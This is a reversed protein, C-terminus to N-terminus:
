QSPPLSLPIELIMTEPLHVEKNASERGILTLLGSQGRTETLKGEDWSVLLSPYLPEDWLIWARLCSSTPPGLNEMRTGGSFDGGGGPVGFSSLPADLLTLFTQGGGRAWWWWGNQGKPVAELGPFSVWIPAWRSRRGEPSGTAAPAARSPGPCRPCMGVELM